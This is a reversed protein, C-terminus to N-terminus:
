WEGIPCKESDVSAKKAVNCKCVLCANGSNRFDCTSCVAIRTFFLMKPTRDLGLHYKIYGLMSM